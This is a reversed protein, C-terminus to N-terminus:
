RNRRASELARSLDPPLPEEFDLQEGSIPHNFQLGTAHLFPRSLGLRRALHRTAPGYTRDGVVPHGIHALHVRIQHTRGTELRVSLLSAEGLVELVEFNTIAPKGESTVGMLTPNRPTRGVPAEIRGLPVEFEGAALALYRRSIGRAKMLRSLALYSDDTKAVILLGSTDKDLRHVIGPRGEGAAGALPMRAALADVLSSGGATVAHTILGAPKVVVALHEDQFKIDVDPAQAAKPPPHPSETLEVMQGAALRTSNSAPTGGVTVCGSRILKQVENRARGSVAALWADLRAGASEDDV